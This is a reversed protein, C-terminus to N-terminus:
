PVAAGVADAEFRVSSVRHLGAEAIRVLAESTALKELEPLLSELASHVAQQFDTLTGVFVPEDTIPAPVLRCRLAALVECARSFSPDVEGSELRSITPQTTSLAAALATQSVKKDSRLNTVLRALWAIPAYGEVESHREADLERLRELAEATTGSDPNKATTRKSM